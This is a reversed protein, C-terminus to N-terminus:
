EDLLLRKLKLALRTNSEYKVPKPNVIEADKLIYIELIKTLEDIDFFLADNEAAERHEPINTALVPTKNIRAEAIPMGYGEYYSPLILFKAGKVLATLDKRNVFNMIRLKTPYEELFLKLKKNLVSNRWGIGGVLVLDLTEKTEKSLAEKYSEILGDINKRPELSGVCIFYNKVDLDYNKIITNTEDDTFDVGSKKPPNIIADSDVGYHLKLKATTGESISVVKESARLMHKFFFKLYYRRGFSMTEPFLMFVFDYVTLVRKLKNRKLLPVSQTGGWFVDIKYKFLLYSLTTQSWISELNSFFSGTIIFVNKYKTFYKIEDSNQYTFLFFDHDQSQKILEDLLMFVYYGVGGRVKILPVVDVGIRM